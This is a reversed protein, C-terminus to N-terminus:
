IQNANMSVIDLAGDIGYYMLDGPNFSVLVPKDVVFKDIKNVSGQFVLLIVEL